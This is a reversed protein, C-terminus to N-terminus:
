RVYATCVLLILVTIEVTFVSSSILPQSVDKENSLRDLKDMDLVFWAHGGTALPLIKYDNGDHDKASRSFLFSAVETVLMYDGIGVQIEGNVSDTDSACATIEAEADGADGKFAYTAYDGDENAINSSVYLPSYPPSM